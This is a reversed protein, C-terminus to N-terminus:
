KKTQEKMLIGSVMSGPPVAGAADYSKMRKLETVLRSRDGRHLAIYYELSTGNDLYNVSEIYLLPAGKKINLLKSEEESAVTAEIFRIGNTLKLNYKDEIFSYLSRNSLDENLLDPCLKHPIYTRDLVTPEGNLRRVRRIVIVDEGIELGLKEAVRPTAPIKKQCIIDNKVKFGRATMDEYFGILSQVLNESIKPAAIFTGKAKKKILYGETVLEQFTQRVVTRSIGFIECVKIEPIIQQGPKWNGTEIEEIIYLKLQYYYPIKSSKDINFKKILNVIDQM